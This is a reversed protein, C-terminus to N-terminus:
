KKLRKEFRKVATDFHEKNKEIGIFKRGTEIAAIGTTGSGMCFDLVTEGPASFCDLLYKFEPSYKQAPHLFTEELHFDTKPFSKREGSSPLGKYILKMWSNESYYSLSPRKFKSFDTPLFITFGDPVGYIETFFSSAFINHKPLKEILANWNEYFWEDTDSVICDVFDIEPFVDLCDGLYLTADGIVIKQM